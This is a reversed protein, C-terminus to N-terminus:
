LKAARALSILGAFADTSVMLVPGSPRKSDRVPVIGTASAHSPSWEVCNGGNDSYSSKSWHLPEPTTTM